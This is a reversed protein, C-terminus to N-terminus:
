HRSGRFPGTRSILYEIPAKGHNSIATLTELTAKSLGIDLWNYVTGRSVKLKKAARAIGGMTAIAAALWDIKKASAEHRLRESATVHAGRGTLMEVGKAKGLEERCYENRNMNGDVRRLKDWRSDQSTTRHAMSFSRRWSVYTIMQNDPGTNLQEEAAESKTRVAPDSGTL